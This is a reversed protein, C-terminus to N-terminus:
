QQGGVADKQSPLNLGIVPEAVPEFDMAEVLTPLTMINNSLQRYVSRNQHDYYARLYAFSSSRGGHTLLLHIAENEDQPEEFGALCPNIQNELRSNKRYTSERPVDDPELLHYPTVITKSGRLELISVGGLAVWVPEIDHLRGNEAADALMRQVIVWRLVGRYNALNPTHLLPDEVTNSRALVADSAALLVEQIVSLNSNDWDTAVETLFFPSSMFESSDM